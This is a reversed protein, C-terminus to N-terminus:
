RRRARGGRRQAGAAGHHDDIAPLARQLVEVRVQDLQQHIAAAVDADLQSAGGGDGCDLAGSVAVPDGELVRPAGLRDLGVQDDVASSADGVQGVQAEVSGLDLPALVADVTLSWRWLVVLGATQAAPSEAAVAPIGSVGTATDSAFTAADLM